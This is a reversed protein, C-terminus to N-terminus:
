DLGRAEAIMAAHTRNRANLKTCISRVHMKITVESLGLQGAIEKNMRGARVLRLVQMERATLGLDPAASSDIGPPLYTAGVLLGRVINPLDRAPTSKPILGRAGQAMAEVVVERRAIGSFLVVPRGGNRTILAGISEAGKMGPMALDLLVLDFGGAADICREAEPLSGATTVEFGGDSRLHAAVLDRVLEHDDAILLRAKPPDTPTM